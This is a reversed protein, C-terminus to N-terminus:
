PRGVRSRASTPGTKRDLQVAALVLLRAPLTRLRRDSKQTRWKATTTTETASRAPRRRHFPQLSELTRRRSSQDWLDLAREPNAKPSSSDQRPAQDPGRIM